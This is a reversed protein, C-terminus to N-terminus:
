KIETFNFNRVFCTVLSIPVRPVFQNTMKANFQTKIKDPISPFGDLNFDKENVEPSTDYVPADKEKDIAELQSGIKNVLSQFYLKWLDLRKNHSKFENLKSEMEDLTRRRADAENQLTIRKNVDDLFKQLNNQLQEYIQDIEQIAAKIRRKVCTQGTLASIVFLLGFCGFAIAILYLPDTNDFWFFHYAYCLTSALISFFGIWFLCSFYGLKPMEMKLSAIANLFEDMLGRRTAMYNNLDETHKIPTDLKELKRKEDELERYTAKVPSASMEKYTIRNPTDYLPRDNELEFKYIGTVHDVVNNYWGWDGVKKGFFFPVRKILDFDEKMKKREATYKDNLKRYTDTEHAETANPEYINYNVEMDKTWEAKKLLPLCANVQARLKILADADLDHANTENLIFLRARQNRSSNKFRVSYDADNVTCILQVLAKVFTEGRLYSKRAKGSSKVIFFVCDRGFETSNLGIQQSITNRIVEEYQFHQFDRVTEVSKLLSDLKAQVLEAVGAEKLRKLILRKVDELKSEFDSYVTSLSRSSLDASEDPSGMKSLIKNRLEDLQFDKSSFWNEANGGTIGDYALQQYFDDLASDDTGTNIFVFSYEMRNHIPHNEGFVKKVITRFQRVKQAPFVKGEPTQFLGGALDLIIILRIKGENDRLSLTRADLLNRLTTLKKEVYALGSELSNDEPSFRDVSLRDYFLLPEKACVLSM